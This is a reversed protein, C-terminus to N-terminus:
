LADLSGVVEKYRVAGLALRRWEQDKEVTGAAVALYEDLVPLGQGLLLSDNEGAGVRHDAFAPPTVISREEDTVYHLRNLGVVGDITARHIYEPVRCTRDEAYGHADEFRLIEGGDGHM